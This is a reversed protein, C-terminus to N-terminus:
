NLTAQCYEGVKSLSGGFIDKLQDLNLSESDSTALWNEGVLIGTEPKGTPSKPGEPGNCAFVAADHLDKSSQFFVMKFGKAMGDDDACFMRSDSRVFSTFGDFLSNSCPKSISDLKELAQSNTLSPASCASLALVALLPLAAAPNLLNKVKSTRKSSNSV